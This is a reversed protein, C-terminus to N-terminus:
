LLLKAPDEIAEAIWRLFRAGDAGDILRHDYSLALPLIPRPQFAGERWVAETQARAVGLIAAQPWNVIPTFSTGGIVGLNTVSFTGGKMDDLDLKGDRARKVIDVLEVALEVLGKKDVDRVVPVLLGRDTDVAVGIHVYEKYVIERKEWDLSANVQPHAKLAGAAIKLLLATMSLKGGAAEAEKGYTSRIAELRTVDAKDFQTVHPMTQWARSVHEATATRVKSMAERRVSGWKEFDPLPPMTIGAVSAGATKQKKSHAKVDDVSIRGNPGSGEVQDIDVGIERAFRRVSPAAPAPDGTRPQAAPAQAEESSPTGEPAVDKTTEASSARKGAPETEEKAPEESPEERQEAETVGGEEASEGGDGEDSLKLIAQGVKVEEDESILIEEVTGSVDCPVEVVAKETELEIVGQEKEVHDGASILIGTVTGSEVNEGLEPLHFTTSM